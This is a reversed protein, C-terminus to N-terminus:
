PRGGRAKDLLRALRTPAAHRGGDAQHKRIKALRWEQGDAASQAERETKKATRLSRRLQQNRAYPDEWHKRNHEYLEALRESRAAQDRKDAAAKEVSAFADPAVAEGTAPDIEPARAHLSEVKIAGIKDGDYDVVKARAGSVVRYRTNQPDTEIEYHNACLHCKMRFRFIPTSFYAGVKSKEANFRTGQAVLAACQDCWVDFPLEFRTILIGDKLKSARSGLAHHKGALKNVSTKGDYDPPYYKNFGQM